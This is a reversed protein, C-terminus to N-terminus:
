ETRMLNDRCVAGAQQRVDGDLERVHVDKDVREIGTLEFVALRDDGYGDVDGASIVEPANYGSQGVDVSYILYLSNLKIRFASNNKKLIIISKVM